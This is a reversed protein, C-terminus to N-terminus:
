NQAKGYYGSNQSPKILHFRAFGRAPDFAGGHADNTMLPNVHHMGSRGPQKRRAKQVHPLMPWAPGTM